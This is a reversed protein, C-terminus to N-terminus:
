IMLHTCQVKHTVFEFYAHKDQKKCASAINTAILAFYNRKITTWCVVMSLKAICWKSYQYPLMCRLAEPQKLSWMNQEVIKEKKSDDIHGYKRANFVICITESSAYCRQQQLCHKMSGQIINFHLTTSSSTVKFFSFMPLKMSVNCCTVQFLFVIRSIDCSTTRISSSQRSCHFVNMVHKPSHCHETYCHWLCM